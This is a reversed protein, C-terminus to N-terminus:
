RRVSVDAISSLVHIRYYWLKLFQLVVDQVGHASDFWNSPDQTGFVPQCRVTVGHAELIPAYVEMARQSRFGPTVLLVSRISRTELERAVARALNLSIPEELATEFVDCSQLGAIRCMLRTTGITVELPEDIPSRRMVPVVVDRALGRALLQEARTFPPYDHDVNDILAADSEVESSVCVLANAVLHLWTRRTAIAGALALVAVLLVVALTFRNKV